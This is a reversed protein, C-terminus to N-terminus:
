KARSGALQGLAFWFTEEDDNILKGANRYLLEIAMSTIETAYRVGHPDIYDKGM